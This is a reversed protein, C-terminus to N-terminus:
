ATPLRVVATIGGGPTEDLHVTGGGSTVLRRVIALGLGSGGPPAGPARWFRDFARARQDAPLGPGHDVVALEVVTAVSPPPASAPALGRVRVVVDTEPPAVDLANALLGDVVQELAGDVARAVIPGTADVRLTVGGEAALADWTAVREVAVAAVDVAVVGDGGPAAGEARALALLSEVVRGLRDVETAIAEAEARRATPPDDGEGATAAVLNDVRLRLATLPTRLEHSADAVFAQQGDVLQQLRGAMEDFTEALRRLEPPGAADGVRRGLDGAALAAAAQELRRVPRTVSTALLVSILATSVLASTALLGLRIWTSRVRDDLATTPYTVRVAGHVVGGSSVPVAVYALDTGLTDSHRVGTATRGALAAGIEPRTSLDRAEGPRDSDALSTGTADVIVVRGDSIAAYRDAVAQLDLQVSGELADDVFRAIVDADQETDTFLRERERSAFTRGLPVVLVALLFAALGVYSLVLRRTV